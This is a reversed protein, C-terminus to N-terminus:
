WGFTKKTEVKRIQQEGQWTIVNTRLNLLKMTIQYYASQQSNNQQVISSITGYLMFQAGIQQGIAVATKQDVMGSSQQYNLQAKVANVQSMDVFQFKGSNILRTSIADTLASTDIIDSTNNTMGGIFIVPQANATLQTVQPSSLMSDVMQATTTQLDTSGFNTTTTDVANPNTYSVTPNSSCASLGLALVSALCVSLIRIKM